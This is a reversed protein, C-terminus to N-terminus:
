RPLSFTIKLLIPLRSLITVLDSFEINNLSIDKRLNWIALCISYVCLDLFKTYLVTYANIYMKKESTWIMLIMFM